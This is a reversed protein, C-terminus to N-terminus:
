TSFVQHSVQRTIPVEIVTPLNDGAKGANQLAERLEEVTQVRIGHAGMAQAVQALNPTTHTAIEPPKNDRVMVHYEAGLANDNMVIVTLPIRNRVATELEQVIMLFGADGAFVVTNRQPAGVAAGIGLPVGLGIASFDVRWILDNPNSLRLGDIVFFGAQGGDIVAIRDEPLHQDCEAVVLRPDLGDDGNVYQIEQQRAAALYEKLEGTWFRNTVDGMADLARNIAAVTAKADGIIAVDTPTIRGLADPNDDVHIIRARSFLNGKYTTDRNLSCGVALVCDASSLFEMAVGTSLSGAIGLNWEHDGFIDKSHPTTALLAGIKEALAEIEERAGSDAAGRGALIVPPRETSSLLLAAEEVKDPDPQIRQPVIPEVPRYQWGPALDLTFLDSPVQLAVPTRHVRTYRFARRLDAELTAPTRVTIVEGVTSRLYMDQDFYKNGVYVENAAFYPVLLVLPSRRKRATVLATGTQAVAPGRGVVCVAPKGTIRAYGDAMAVAGQEHRTMIVQLNPQQKMELLLDINDEAMLGFVVEVEEALVANVIGEYVKM